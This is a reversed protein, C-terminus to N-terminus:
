KQSSRRTILDKVVDLIRRAVASKLTRKVKIKRDQRTIIIVENFDSAFGIDERSIDNAVIADFGRSLMKEKANKILISEDGRAYEASFGVIVGKFRERLLLSIKPTAVLEVKLPADSTSLRGKFTKSFKFDSPAAALIVADYVNSSVESLVADAMDETTVTKIAKVYHPVEDSMITGHVLTVNAGRFCAERALALGMKGTSPNTLFRISDLWERTAGATILINMGALDRGRLTVAEVASVIDVKSPLKAKNELIVPPVITVGLDRLKTIIGLKEISRWLNFHMAPVVILPKGSGLMALATLTVSSDAIGNTIKALTNLTAPCILMSSAEHTLSIHGVEGKFEVFVRRGTAWEVLQPSLLKTAEKSMVTIVNAGRRILERAVDISKYIASSSTLGLIITRGGFVNGLTGFIEMVPHYKIGLYDESM